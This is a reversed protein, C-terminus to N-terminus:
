SELTTKIREALAPGIGPVAAIQEVPLAIIEDLSLTGYRSLRRHEPAIKGTKNTFRWPPDALITAFRRQGVFTLLDRQIDHM